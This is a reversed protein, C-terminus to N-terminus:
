KMKQLLDLIDQLIEENSIDMPKGSGDNMVHGAYETIKMDAEGIVERRIQSERELVAERTYLNNVGGDNERVKNKVLADFQATASAIAIKKKEEEWEKEIEQRYSKLFKKLLDRHMYASVVEEEICDGFKNTKLEGESDCPLALFAVKSVEDDFEELIREEATPTQPTTM